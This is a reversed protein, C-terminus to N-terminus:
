AMEIPSGVSKEAFRCTMELPKCNEPLVAVKTALRAVRVM